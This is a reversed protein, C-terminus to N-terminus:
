SPIALADELILQSDELKGSIEALERCDLRQPGSHGLARGRTELM